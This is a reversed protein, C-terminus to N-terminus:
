SPAGTARVNRERETMAACADKVAIEAAAAPTRGAGSHEVGGDLRTAPTLRVTALWTDRGTRDIAGLCRLSGTLIYETRTM